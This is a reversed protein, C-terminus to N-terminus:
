RWRIHAPVGKRNMLRILEDIVDTSTLHREPLLTLCQRTFEDIVSLWKLRRGREDRDFIFDWGLHPQPTRAPSPRLQEQEDGLPPTQAKGSWSAHEANLYRL